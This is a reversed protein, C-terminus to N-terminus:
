YTTLFFSDSSLHFYHETGISIQWGEPKSYAFDVRIVKNRIAHGPSFRLGVGTSFLFDRFRFSEDSKWSRGADVFLAYGIKVAMIEINTFFRIESNIVMQRDGTKYYEDYGRIGSVGGLKLSETNDARWDSYYSGHLAFTIIDFNRNYYLLSINSLKRYHSSNYFWHRRNYAVYIINKGPSFGHWLNMTIIDYLYDNFDPNFARGLSLSLVKGLTFDEIYGMGDVKKFKKFNLLSTKIGFGILHYTTDSSINNRVETSDIPNESFYKAGISNSYKYSYSTSYEIKNKYSGTRYSAGLQFADGLFGTEGIKLTDKYIENIIDGYNLSFYYSFKQNLNYFPKSLILWNVKHKPNSTHYLDFSLSRGWFKNDIFRVNEYDDDFEKIFYSSSLYQNRGFLNRDTISLKILNENGERSFNPGFALTWEDITIVKVLLHGNSLTDTEIWADYLSLRNRLNRATEEILEKPYIDGVNFLLERKIVNQRTTVHLKNALKFIFNNYRSNDTDFINRNEIIISDIILNNEAKLSLTQNISNDVSDFGFAHVNILLILFINIYLYKTTM